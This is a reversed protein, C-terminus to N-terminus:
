VPVLSWQRNSLAAQDTVLVEEFRHAPAAARATGSQRKLRKGPSCRSAKQRAVFRGCRHRRAAGTAAKSIMAAAQRAGTTYHQRLFQAQKSSGMRGTIAHAAPIPFIQEAVEPM